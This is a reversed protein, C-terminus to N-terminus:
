VGWQMYKNIQELLRVMEDRCNLGSSVCYMHNVKYDSEEAIYEFFYSLGILNYPLAFIDWSRFYLHMDLKREPLLKFDIVQLCPRDKLSHDYPSAIVCQANNTYGKKLKEIVIVAQNDIRNGYTYSYKHNFDSDMLEQFYEEGYDVSCIMPIDRTPIGEISKTELPNEIKFTTWPLQRRWKPHGEQEYYDGKTCLKAALTLFTERINKM